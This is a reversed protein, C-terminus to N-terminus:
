IEKGTLARKDGDRKTVGERDFKELVPMVIRRSAGVAQRLESVTAPGNRKIWDVIGTTMGQYVSKLIVIDACLEVVEGTNLLFKMVEQSEADPALEKRGPPETPKANLGARIKAAAAKLRDPLAPTHTKRALVTGRKEFESECLDGLLLDVADPSGLQEILAARSETLPLGPLEPHAAHFANILDALTAGAARWADQDAVIGEREVLKGEAILEGLAQRVANPGFRSQHLVREAKAATDRSLQSATWVRLDDPEGARAELLSRQAQSRFRRRNAREDLIRGGALTAQESWDRVIFRDGAAAFVPREFRLEAIDSEGPLLEKRDLLLVRAPHNGSGMHVRVRTNNKLPRNVSYQGSDLRPSREIWVDLADSTEGADPLTVIDGRQVGEAGHSTDHGLDPLNVATRTGPGVSEVDANHAQISRLRSTAGSPQLAVTQGKTLTGGTLTGTVVTGIGRLTFVRDVPLRPRGIDAPPPTDALVDLLAQKLEPIGVGTTVSTGIIPAEAFPTGALEERVMEVALEADADPLDIKTLAVVAKTVGLYALIQAHEETQPMWSDDAAVVILALDISGVGAVMNKVFDEHGPVDIIGLRYQKDGSDLDLSAFGLDITIGREKEEPLRDPDIQTLAKILSSKGHDVHGATALIYNAASM